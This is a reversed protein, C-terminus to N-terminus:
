ETPNELIRTCRRIARKLWTNLLKPYIYPPPQYRRFLEKPSAVFIFIGRPTRQGAAAFEAHRQVLNDRLDCYTVWLRANETTAKM